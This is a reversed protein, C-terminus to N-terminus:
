EEKETYIRYISEAKEKLCVPMNRGTLILDMSEPRKEILEELDGETLFGREACELIGDLILVECEGTDLIKKTFNFANRIEGSIERHITENTDADAMVEPSRDKEFRFIRFDPELKKLLSIEKSNYHDLFQIMVVHLDEGIARLGRGVAISTKGKGEGYYISVQGQRM